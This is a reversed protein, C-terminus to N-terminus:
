WTNKPSVSGCDLREFGEAAQMIFEDDRCGGLKVLIRRSKSIARKGICHARGVRITSEPKLIKLVNKCFDYIKASWNGRQSVVSAFLLQSIPASQSAHEIGDVSSAGQINTASGQNNIMTM